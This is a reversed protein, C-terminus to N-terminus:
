KGLASAIFLAVSVFGSFAAIAVALLVQRRWALTARETAQAALADAEAKAKLEGVDGAIEVTRLHDARRGEVWEGRPVYLREAWSRFERVDKSIDEFRKVVDDLRRMIEGPTPSDPM